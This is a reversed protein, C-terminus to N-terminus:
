LQLAAERGTKRQDEAQRRKKEKTTAQLDSKYVRKKDRLLSARKTFKGAPISLRKMVRERSAAGSHFHLVASAVGCCIVKAAHHKHKPCRVWVLSNICESRNQTAGLVCWELLKTESLPMFTPRLLEFFFRPCATM